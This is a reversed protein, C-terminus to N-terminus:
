RHPAAQVQNRGNDNARYLARDARELGMEWSEQAQLEAVGASLTVNPISQQTRKNILKLQQVKSRVKDALKIAQALPM